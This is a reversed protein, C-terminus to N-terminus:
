KVQVPTEELLKALPPVQLAKREADTTTTDIPAWLMRDSKEDYVKQTGYKQVGTTYLLFRDLTVATFYVAEAYGMAIAARSLEHAMLYNEASISSLKGDCYTLATHQLILAAFFKDQATRVDGNALMRMVEARHLKDTEELNAKDDIRNQQDIRVMEALRANDTPSPIHTGPSCAAISCAFLLLCFDAARFLRFFRSKSYM